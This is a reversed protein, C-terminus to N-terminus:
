SKTERSRCRDVLVNGVYFLFFVDYEEEDSDDSELLDKMRNHHQKEKAKQEKAKM